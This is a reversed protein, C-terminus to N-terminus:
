APNTLDSPGAAALPIREQRNQSRDIKHFLMKIDLHFLRLDYAAERRMIILADTLATWKRFSIM